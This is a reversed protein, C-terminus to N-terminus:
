AAAPSATVAADTSRAAHIRGYAWRLAKRYASRTFRPEGRDDAAPDNQMRYWGRVTHSLGGPSPAETLTLLKEFTDRRSAATAARWIADLLPVAYDAGDGLRPQWAPDLTAYPGIVDVAAQARSEVPGATAATHAADLAARVAHWDFRGAVRHDVANSGLALSRFVSVDYFDTQVKMEGEDGEFIGTLASPNGRPKAGGILDQIIIPHNSSGDGGTKQLWQSRAEDARQVLSTRRTADKSYVVFQGSASTTKGALTNERAESAGAALALLCLGTLPNKWHGAM